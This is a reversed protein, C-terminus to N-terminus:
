FCGGCRKLLSAKPDPQEWGFLKCNACFSGFYESVEMELNNLVLFRFNLVKKPILPTNLLFASEECKYHRM